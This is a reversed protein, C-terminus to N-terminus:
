EFVGDRTYTDIETASMGLLTGYVYANHEGLCPAPRMAAPTASLSFAPGMYFTEDTVPHKLLRYHNRHRLQPDHDLLDAANQVVGAAVGAAQLRQMVEEPPHQCTWTSLLADLIDVHQLRGQVTHFRAEQSWAPEGMVQCLATWEADTFVAIVCWRDEGHCRYVGHPAATASRGGTRGQVRGNVLYDMM